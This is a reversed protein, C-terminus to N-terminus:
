YTYTFAKETLVKVKSYDLDDEKSSCCGGSSCGNCGNSSCGCSHKKEEEEYGPNRKLFEAYTELYGQKTLSQYIEELKIANIGLNKMIAGDSYVMGSKLFELVETEIYNM